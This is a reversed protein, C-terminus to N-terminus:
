LEQWLALPVSLDHLFLALALLDACGGASIGRAICAADLAAHAAPRASAPLRLIQRAQERLFSAGEEGTRYLVNTDTVQSMLWLLVDSPTEADLRKAAMRAHVFGSQAEARAGGAGYRLFAQGGHSSDAAALESQTLAALAVPFDDSFLSAGLAGLTLGFCYIAGRHTNVGGTVQLMAAEARKGITRLAERDSGARVCQAFYPQLAYASAEFLPVHMDRHAGNNAEDVLGAKPTVHVERLLADTAREALLDACGARLRQRMADTVADLGHARSRACAAGAKGCVICPRQVPRACKAGTADLVDLDYLRGLPPEDEIAQAAAKVTEAPLDYVAWGVAGTPLLEIEQYLPAQLTQHLREWAHAFALRLAPADKQAGAMNMTACLLPHSFRGLLATQKAQRQERATLIEALTISVTPM